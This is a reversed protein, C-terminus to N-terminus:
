FKLTASFSYVKPAKTTAFNRDTSTYSHSKDTDFFFKINQALIDRANFKLELSNKIFSKTLQFDIVTRAKEYLEPVLYNGSVSLRDGIRNVSLTSSLGREEDNYGISGNILYPSQGQLPRNSTFKAADIYPVGEVKVNSKIYASNAALTFKNLISRENKVGFITSLLTRFEAEIGYATASAVNSYFAQGTIDPVFVVEVPRYFDKYFASVSFLQAKGPYFELRFDYNKIKARQLNINGNISYQAQYDYFIFPVIERFEPRNVTQSFSLRINSKPTVAYVFNFSPLFDTVVSDTPLQLKQDFKEVRVGYIIRLKNFFRQDSMIYAHTTTSTANYNSGSLTGDKLLFGGLGSKQLGLHQPLYIQDEPLDLLSYDFTVGGNDYPTFGLLRSSFDRKRFQYGGGIKLFNQSNKLFTFPQTIDVKFNKITEISNIFFMTGSGTLQSVYNPTFATGIGPSNINIQYSTRSYNPIEREVESYSGLWNIKTKTKEVLHEGLLQSSIIKNSTFSRVVDRYGDDPSNQLDQVWIRKILKNDTNVSMNNKWAINNRDNIKIAINGLAAWVVEDNYVSDQVSVYKTTRDDSYVDRDTPTFSYNRNYTIAFLAGLFEKEKKQINFGKSLQFNYNPNTFGKQIGWKYNKFLKAFEAQHASTATVIEGYGPTGQPLGRRGDDLGLWDKNGKNGSFYRTKGTSLSNFSTGFSISTFNRQPISKTTIEIIGGAFDGLKDPTATKYIVMNDLISSPFIDFSFAKRDSETSPLPAGNIFAANYRDNLGRIVAFRDDQISAGSIRKFVDSTSRDPTKKISEATIGDSVNASNKQAILLSAVTEGAAKVRTGKVIVADSKREELSITIDTNDGNRLIISDVIKEILGGYSCKISYIGAELKNFSFSGNQDAVVTKSKEILILTASALAQGSGANIVKGTIKASQASVSYSIIFFLWGFYIKRM